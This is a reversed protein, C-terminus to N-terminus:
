GGTLPIGTVRHQKRDRKEEVKIEKAKTQRKDKAKDKKSKKDGM